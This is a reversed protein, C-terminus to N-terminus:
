ESTKATWFILFTRIDKMSCFIERFNNNEIYCCYRDRVIEETCLQNKFGLQWILGDILSSLILEHVIGNSFSKIQKKLDFQGPVKKIATKTDFIISSTNVSFIIFILLFVKENFIEIYM